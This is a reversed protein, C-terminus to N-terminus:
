AKERDLTLRGRIRCVRSAVLDTGFLKISTLCRTGTTLVRRSTSKSSPADLTTKGVFTRVRRGCCEHINLRNKGCSGESVMCFSTPPRMHFRQRAREIQNDDARSRGRSDDRRSASRCTPRNRHHILSRKTASTRQTSAIGLFDEDTRRARHITCTRQRSFSDPGVAERDIPGLQHAELPAKRIWNRCAFLLAEGSRADLREVADRAEDRGGLKCNAINHQSRCLGDQDRRASPRDLQRNFAM